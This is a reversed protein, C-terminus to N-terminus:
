FKRYFPFDAYKLLERDGEANGYAYLIYNKEIGLVEKLRNVKEIGWCNKGKLRGTVQGMQNFDVKSSVCEQFGYNKAFVELYVDLNASILISQHGLSQHWLLKDLAEKKLLKVLPGNAFSKGLERLETIPMDKYFTKIIREKVSQRSILKLLCAIFFPIYCFLIFYTKLYGSTFVLFSPLSDKTTITGDFDFAAVTKLDKTLQCVEHNSM